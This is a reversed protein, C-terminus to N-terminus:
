ESLGVAELAEHPEQYGAQATVLGDHLTLVTAGPSEFEIGSRKARVRTTYVIVVHDGTARFDHPEFTVYDYTESQQEFWKRYGARGRFVTQEIGGVLSPRLEVDPHMVELLANIDGRNLADIGRRAVDLNERSM